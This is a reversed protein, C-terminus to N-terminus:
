KAPKPTQPPKNTSQKGNELDKKLDKAKEKVKDVQANAPALVVLALAAVLATFMSRILITKM